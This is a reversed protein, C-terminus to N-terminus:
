GELQVHRGKFVCIAYESLVLQVDGTPGRATFECCCLPNNKEPFALEPCLSHTAATEHHEPDRQSWFWVFNLLMLYLGSDTRVM